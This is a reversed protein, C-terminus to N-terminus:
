KTARPRRATRRGLWPTCKDLNGHFTGTDGGTFIALGWDAFGDRLLSLQVTAPEPIAIDGGTSEAVKRGFSWAELTVAGDPVAPAVGGNDGVVLMRELVISDGPEAYTMPTGFASIEAM